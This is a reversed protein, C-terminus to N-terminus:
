EVVVLCATSQSSGEEIASNVGLILEVLIHHKTM